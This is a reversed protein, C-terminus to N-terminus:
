QTAMSTVPVLDRTDSPSFALSGTQHLKSNHRSLSRQQQVTKVTAPLLRHVLGKLTQQLKAGEVGHNTVHLRDCLGGVILERFKRTQISVMTSMTAFVITFFRKLEEASIDGHLVLPHTELWKWCDVSLCSTSPVVANTKTSPEPALVAVEQLEAEMEEQHFEKDLRLPPFTRGSLPGIPLAQYLQIPESLGRLPQRGLDSWVVDPLHGEVADYVEQSVGVQGGHCVSEIRAATNVVTGYYDYAKTVADFQIDGLGHHIGVRVRLGNWCSSSVRGVENTELLEIYTRDIATDWHHDHLTNQIALALRVAQQPTRVACMFSDGITKVEYCHHKAIAQRILAHHTSLAPAMIDPVTAWLHTSAQIDTFLICFPKHADKPAASHNRRTRLWYLGVGVAAVGFFGVVAGVIAAMTAANSSSELFATYVVHCTSISYLDEVDSSSLSRIAVSRVGENCECESLGATCNEGDYPGLTVAGSTMVRVTYWAKLLEAPTTYSKYAYQSHVLTSVVAQGLVYGYKWPESYETNSVTTNWQDTIITPFHLRSAQSLSSANPLVAMLCMALRSLTLLHLHPYQPLANYWSVIAEDSGIAIVCGEQTSSLVDSVASYTSTSAARRQFSEVSQTMVRLLQRGTDTSTARLHVATCRQTAWNALAMLELSAAPQVRVEDRSFAANTAAVKTEFNGLSPIPADVLSTNPVVSGLMAALPYRNTMNQATAKANSYNQQLLVFERGGAGGGANAEAFAQTIGRGMELAVARWGDDWSPLLQGFLLPAIVSSVPNSCELVSYRTTALGPKLYGTVDTDLQATYVSRLGSNCSCLAQSCGSYNSSYMGIVLDDLVFMRTNYVQDLFMGSTPNASRTRNLVEVIFRGVIYGEFSIAGPTSYLGAFHRSIAWSTDGPMPVVFFFYVRSWLTRNLQGSFSSGWGPSMVTYICDPDTRADSVHLNIFKILPNQLAILVVAQPKRPAAAIAEVAEEVDTNGVTYSGSAVLELGVNALADVLASRGTIGFSDDQYLCAIRQVRSYQVLFTAQAVVEDNFSARINVFEEHFPTHLSALGSYPGVYPVRRQLILPKAQDVIDSGVVGALLLVNDVDLLQYINDMAKTVNYGDDRAVLTINRSMIGGARNAEEFAFKMGASM